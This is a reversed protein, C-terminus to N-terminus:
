VGWFTNYYTISSWTWGTVTQIFSNAGPFIM